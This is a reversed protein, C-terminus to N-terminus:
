LGSHRTGVTFCPPLDTFYKPIRNTRYCSQTTSNSSFVQVNWTVLHMRHDPHRKRVIICNELHCNAWGCLLTRHRNSSWSSASRCREQGACDGSKFIMLGSHGTACLITILVTGGGDGRLCGSSTRWPCHYLIASCVTWFKYWDVALLVCAIDGAIPPGDGYYYHFTHIECSDGINQGDETHAGQLIICVCTKKLSCGLTV